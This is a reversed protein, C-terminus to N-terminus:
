VETNDFSDSPLNGDSGSNSANNRSRRNYMTRIQSSVYQEYERSDVRERELDTITQSMQSIIMDDSGTRQLDVRLEVNQQLDNNIDIVRRIRQQHALNNISEAISTYGQEMRDIDISRGSGTSPSLLQAFKMNYNRPCNTSRRGDNPATRRNSSFPPPNISSTRDSASTNLESSISQSIENITIDGAIEGTGRKRGTEATTDLLINADTTAVAPQQVVVARNVQVNRM